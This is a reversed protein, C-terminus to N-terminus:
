LVQWIATALIALGAPIRMTRWARRLDIRLLPEEAQCHREFDEVDRPLYPNFPPNNKALAGSRQAEIPASAEGTGHAPAPSNPNPQATHRTM